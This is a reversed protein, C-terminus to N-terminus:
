TKPSLSILRKPTGPLRVPLPSSHTMKHADIIPSAAQPDPGPAVGDGVGDGSSCRAALKVPLLASQVGTAATKGSSGAPASITSTGTPRKEIPPSSRNSPGTWACVNAAGNQISRVSTV